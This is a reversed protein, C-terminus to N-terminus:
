SNFFKTVGRRRNGKDVHITNRQHDILQPPQQQGLSMRDMGMGLQDLDYGHPAHMAGMM